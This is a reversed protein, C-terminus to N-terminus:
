HAGSQHGIGLTEGSAFIQPFFKLMDGRQQLDRLNRLLVQRVGSIAVGQGNCTLRSKKGHIRGGWTRPDVVLNAVFTQDFHCFVGRAFEDRQQLFLSSRVAGQTDGHNAAAAGTQLVFHVQDVSGGIAVNHHLGFIHTHYDIGLAREENTAGEEIIAFIQLLASKLNRIWVCNRM